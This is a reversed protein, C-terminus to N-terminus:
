LLYPRLKEPICEECYRIFEEETLESKGFNYDYFSSVLGNAYLREAFLIDAPIETLGNKKLILGHLSRCSEEAHTKVFSDAGQTNEFANSLFHRIKRYYEVGARLYDHFTM